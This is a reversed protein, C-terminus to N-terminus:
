RVPVYCFVHRRRKKVVGRTRSSSSHIVRGKRSLSHRPMRSRSLIHGMRCWLTPCRSSQTPPNLRIRHHHHKCLMETLCHKHPNKNRIETKEQHDKREQFEGQRLTQDPLPFCKRRWHNHFRTRPVHHRQELALAQFPDEM